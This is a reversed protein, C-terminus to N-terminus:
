YANRLIYRSCDGYAYMKIALKAQQVRHMGHCSHEDEADTQLQYLMMSLNKLPLSQRHLPHPSGLLPTAPAVDRRKCHVESFQNWGGVLEFEVKM